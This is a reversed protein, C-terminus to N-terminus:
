INILGASIQSTSVSTLNVETTAKLKRLLANAFDFDSDTLLKFSEKLIKDNILAQKDMESLLGQVLNTYEEGSLTTEISSIVGQIRNLNSNNIIINGAKDRALKDLEAIANKLLTKQVEITKGAFKEGITDLRRIKEKILEDISM